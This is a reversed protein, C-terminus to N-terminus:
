YIKLTVELNKKFYKQYFRIQFKIKMLFIKHILKQNKMKM